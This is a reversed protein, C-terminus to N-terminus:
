LHVLSTRERSVSMVKVFDMHGGVGSHQRAGLAAIIIQGPLHVERALNISLMSHNRAITVPDITYSVPARGFSRNDNLFEYIQAPGLAFLGDTFM